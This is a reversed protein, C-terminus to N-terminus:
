PTPEVLRIRGTLLAQAMAQKFARAKTLRSELTSIQADFDSLVTAIERQENVCPYAQRETNVGNKFDYLDSLPAQVWTGRDSVSEPKERNM